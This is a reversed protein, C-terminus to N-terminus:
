VGACVEDGEATTRVKKGSMAVLFFTGAMGHQHVGKATLPEMLTTQQHSMSGAPAQRQIFM